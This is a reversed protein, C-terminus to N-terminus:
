PPPNRLHAPPARREPPAEGRLHHEGVGAGLYDLEVGAEAGGFCLADQRSQRAVQQLRHQCRRAAVQATDTELPARPRRDAHHQGTAAVRAPVLGAVDDITEVREVVVHQREVGPGLVGVVPVDGAAAPHQRHHRRAVADRLGAGPGVLVDPPYAKVATEMARVDRRHLRGLRGGSARRPWWPLLDTISPPMRTPLLDPRGPTSFHAWIRVWIPTSDSVRTSEACRAGASIDSHALPARPRPILTIM